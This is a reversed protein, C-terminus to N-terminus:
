DQGHDVDQTDEEVLGAAILNAGERDTVEYKRGRNKRYTPPHLNGHPRVTRVKM